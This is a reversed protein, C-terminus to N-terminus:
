FIFLLLRNVARAGLFIIKHRRIFIPKFLKFIKEFELNQTLAVFFNSAHHEIPMGPHELNKIAIVVFANGTMFLVFGNRADPM